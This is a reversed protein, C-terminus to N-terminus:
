LAGNAVQRGAYLLLTSGDFLVLAACPLVLCFKGLQGIYLLHSIGVLTVERLAEYLREPDAYRRPGGPPSESLVLASPGSYGRILSRAPGSYCGVSRTDPTLSWLLLSNNARLERSASKGITTGLLQLTLKRVSLLFEQTELLGAGFSPFCGILLHGIELLSKKLDLILSSPHKCLM